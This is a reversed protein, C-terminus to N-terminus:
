GGNKVCSGDHCVLVDDFVKGADVGIDHAAGRLQLGGDEGIHGASAARQMAPDSRQVGAHLQGAGRKGNFHPGAVVQHNVRRDRQGLGAVHQHDIALTVQAGRQHAGDHHVGATLQSQGAHHDVARRAVGSFDDLHAVRHERGAGVGIAGGLVHGAADAM